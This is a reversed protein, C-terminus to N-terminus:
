VSINLLGTDEPNFNSHIETETLPLKMIEQMPGNAGNILSCMEKPIHTLDHYSSSCGCAERKCYLNLLAFCSAARTGTPM